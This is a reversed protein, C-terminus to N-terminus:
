FVLFTWHSRIFWQIHMNLCTPQPHTCQCAMMLSLSLPQSVSTGWTLEVGIQVSKSQVTLILPVIRTRNQQAQATCPITLHTQCWRPYSVCRDFYQFTSKITCLVTTSECLLRCFAFHLNSHGCINKLIIQTKRMQNILNSLYSSCKARM